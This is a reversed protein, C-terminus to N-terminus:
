AVERHLAQAQIGQTSLEYLTDEGSQKAYWLRYYGRQVYNLFHRRWDAQQRKENAGGPMFETKFVEWALQVFEMPLGTAEVYELLPQYGSIPKEGSTKCLEIFTKLQVRKKRERKPKEPELEEGELLSPNPTTQINTRPEQNITLHRNTTPDNVDHARKTSNSDRKTSKEKRKAEREKAIRSNTESRKQYAEIEEEIRKQVYVGDVLDFFRTLVFEVAEIEEKTSAWTWEIAEELTPFQERDYCSDMLLTYAGHQLMTLRGAKKAYDGINRKYYHM